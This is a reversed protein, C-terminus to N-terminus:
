EAAEGRGKAASRWRRIATFTRATVLSLCLPALIPLAVALIRGLWDPM